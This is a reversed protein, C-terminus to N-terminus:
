YLSQYKDSYLATNHTEKWVNAGKDDQLQASTRHQPLHHPTGARRQWNYKFVTISIFLVIMQNLLQHVAVIGYCGPVDTMTPNSGILGNFLQHMTYYVSFM